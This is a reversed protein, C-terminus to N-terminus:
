IRPVSIGSDLIYEYEDLKVREGLDDEGKIKEMIMESKATIHAESFFLKCPRPSRRVISM